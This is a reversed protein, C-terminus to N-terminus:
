KKSWDLAGGVASEVLVDYDKILYGDNIEDERRKLELVERLTSEVVRQMEMMLGLEVETVSQFMQPLTTCAIEGGSPAIKYLFSDWDMGPTM